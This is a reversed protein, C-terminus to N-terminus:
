TPYVLFGNTEAGPILLVSDRTGHHGDKFYDYRESPHETFLLVQTGTLRAAKIIEDITGRSDHSLLSHVHLNARYEQYPGSRPLKHWESRLGHIAQHVAELKELKLKALADARALHAYVLGTTLALGLWGTIKLRM